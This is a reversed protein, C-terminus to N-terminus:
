PGPRGHHGHHENSGEKKREKRRASRRSERLLRGPAVDGTTIRISVFNMAIRRGAVAADANDQGSTAV